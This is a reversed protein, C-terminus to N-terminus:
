AIACIEGTITNVAYGEEALRKEYEAIRANFLRKATKNLIDILEDLTRRSTLYKHELLWREAISIKQMTDARYVFEFLDKDSVM